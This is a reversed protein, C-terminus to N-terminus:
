GDEASETAAAGSVANALEWLEFVLWFLVGITLGFGCLTLLYNGRAALDNFLWWMAPLLAALFLPLLM